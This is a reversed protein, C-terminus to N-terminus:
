VNLQCFPSVFLSSVSPILSRADKKKKKEGLKPSKGKSDKGKSDKGVKKGISPVASPSSSIGDEASSSTKGAPLREPLVAPAGADVLPNLLRSQRALEKEEDTMRLYVCNRARRSLIGLGFCPSIKLCLSSGNPQSTGRRKVRFHTVHPPSILLPSSAALGARSQKDKFKRYLSLNNEMQDPSLGASPSVAPSINPPPAKSTANDSPTPAPPVPPITLPMIVSPYFSAPQSRNINRHAQDPDNDKKYRDSFPALVASIPPPAVFTMLTHPLRTYVSSEASLHPRMYMVDASFDWQSEPIPNRSSTRWEDLSAKGCGCFHFIIGMLLFNWIYILQASAAEGSSPAIFGVIPDSFTFPFEFFYIWGEVLRGLLYVVCPFPFRCPFRVRRDPRPHLQRGMGRGPRRLALPHVLHDADSYADPTFYPGRLSIMPLFGFTASPFLYPSGLFRARQLLPFNFRGVYGPVRRFRRAYMPNLQLQLQKTASNSAFGVGDPVPIIVDPQIEPSDALAAPGSAESLVSPRYPAYVPRNIATRGIEPRMKGRADVHSLPDSRASSAM